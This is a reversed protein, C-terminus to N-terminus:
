APSQEERGEVAETVEDRELKAWGVSDWGWPGTDSGPHGQLGEYEGVERLGTSGGLDGPM